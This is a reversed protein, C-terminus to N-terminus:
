LASTPPHFNGVKDAWPKIIEQAVSDGVLVYLAGGPQEFMACVGVRRISIGLLGDDFVRGHGAPLIQDVEQRAIACARERKAIILTENARHDASITFCNNLKGAPM